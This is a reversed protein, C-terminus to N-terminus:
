RWILSPFIRVVDAIFATTMKGRLLLCGRLLCLMDIMNNSAVFSYSLSAFYCETSLRLVKVFGLLHSCKGNICKRGDRQM